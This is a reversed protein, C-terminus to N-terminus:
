SVVDVPLKDVGIAEVEHIKVSVDHCGDVSAVEPRNQETTDSIRSTSDEVSSGDSMSSPTSLTTLTESKVDVVTSAVSTVVNDSSPSVGNVPTAQDDSHANRMHQRLLKNTAFRGACFPCVTSKTPIGLHTRLHVRLDYKYKYTRTCLHCQFPRASTHVPLHEHYKSKFLFTKFCYDCRYIKQQESGASSGDTVISPQEAGSSASSKSTSHDVGVGHVPSSSTASSGRMKLDVSHNIGNNTGSAAAHAAAAAAVAARMGLLNHLSAGFQIAAAAAATSPSGPLGVGIQMPGNSATSTPSLLHHHHAPHRPQNDHNLPSAVNSASSGFPLTMLRRTASNVSSSTETAEHKMNAIPTSWHHPSPLPRYYPSTQPRAFSPPPASGAATGMGQHMAEFPSLQKMLRQRIVNRVQATLDHPSSLALDSNDIQGNIPSLSGTKSTPVNFQWRSVSSPSRLDEAASNSEPKSSVNVRPTEHFSMSMDHIASDNVEEDNLKAGCRTDTSNQNHVNHRRSGGTQDDYDIASSPSCIADDSDDVDIEATDDDEFDDIDMIEKTNRPSTTTGSARKRKTEMDESEADVVGKQNNNTDKDVETALQREHHRQRDGFSDDNYYNEDNGVHGNKSPSLHEDGSGTTTLTEGGCGVEPILGTYRDSLQIVTTRGGQVTICITGEILVSTVSGTEKKWLDLVASSVLHRLRQRQMDASM